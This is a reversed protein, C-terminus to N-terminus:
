KEVKAQFGLSSLITAAVKRGQVLGTDVSPQYHIGAFVRSNGADEGIARFSSFTKPTFGLYDYTHDTFSGMDGFLAMLAEAVAASIVAHASSYEPHAPTTLLSNWSSFGMVNRIYTVPRILNYHYKSQWCSISPDSSCIGTIAYAVAAKDLRTNTQKLVQQLISEWHGATTVGPVDRWFLGQATQAPTLNQSVTYVNLVMKYFTSNPDESYAIPAGPQSNSTSGTVITRLNGFYPTSAAGFGPPTPVWLGPGVPPTYSAGVNAIGDTASWNFVAAAISKGFENSRVLVDGHAQSSYGTNLANELSDIAAKDATSANVFISRNVAALAANVSAPWYYLKFRNAAPLDTLGNLKSNIGEGLWTGPAIAEYATLGTYAYYRCFLVNPIGTANKMLRIQMTLWKDIVESSYKGADNPGAAPLHDSKNCSALLSFIIVAFVLLQKVYGTSLNFLRKM